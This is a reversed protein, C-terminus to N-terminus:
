PVFPRLCRCGTNAGQLTPAFDYREAARLGQAPGNYSGGRFVRNLGSCNDTWASGDEPRTGDDVYGNHWCDEVWEWLNGSMDLAGTWSAGAPKSGVAATGGADCGDGGDGHIGAEDFVATGNDCTPEPGDGWPYKRHVPGKAAYEWEAESPLRMERWTCYDIAQQWQLGNQPHNSRGNGVTYLGNQGGYDAVSPDGCPRGRCAEYQAVTVEHKGIWFGVAFTVAHVPGEDADRPDEADPSGMPMVGPPVWVEAALPDEAPTYECHGRANCGAPWGEPHAPCDVGGCGSTCGEDVEGDCDDDRGNCAEPVDPLPGDVCDVDRVAGISWSTRPLHLLEAPELARNMIRVEDILGTFGMAGDNARGIRLPRDPYVIAPPGDQRDLSVWDVFLETHGADGDFTAALHEWQGSPRHATDHRYASDNVALRLGDAGFSLWLGQDAPWDCRDALVEEHVSDADLSRAVLELTLAQPDDALGEAIEVVATGGDFRLATGSGPGAVVDADEVRGHRRHAGADVAVASRVEDFRWWGAYRNRPSLLGDPLVLDSVLADPNGWRLEYARYPYRGDVPEDVTNVFFRVRPLPHARKHLYDAPRAVDHLVVEDVLGPFPNPQPHDAVNGIVLDVGNALLGPVGVGEGSQRVGDVFLWMSAPGWTVAVHHWGGPGVVADSTLTEGGQFSVSVAGQADVSLSLDGPPDADNANNDVISGDEQGATLWLWAELTGAPLEPVRDASVRVEHDDGQFALAGDTDGFRGRTAVAGAPVGDLGQESADAGDGDLPWYAVVHDDLDDPRDALPIAGVVEFEVEVGDEAVRLDDFDPQAAPPLRTGFGGRSEYYAEVELPSLARGLLVVEDLAGSWATNACPDAPGSCRGLQLYEGNDVMGPAFDVSGALAGDVYLSLRAGDHTGCLHHWTGVVVAGDEASVSTLPDEGAGNSVELRVGGGQLVSLRYADNGLVGDGALTKDVVVMERDEGPRVWACLSFRDLGDLGPGDDIRVLGDGSLEYAGDPRGGRDAVPQPGIVQGDHENGGADRGDGDLPWYGAVSRDLWGGAVLPVEVPESRRAWQSTGPQEPDDSLTLTRGLPFGALLLCDAGDCDHDVEDGCVDEAFPHFAGAADDCDGPQCGVFGEALVAGEACWGDGDEDCGEDEEGNCDNDLGDCIEDDAPSASGGLLTSCRTVRADEGLACEVVGMGCEGVEQANCLAGLRQVAGEADYPFLPTGDEDLEDRDAVGDCDGDEGLYTGTDPDFTGDCVEDAAARTATGGPDVSCVAGHGDAACEVVGRDQACAGFSGDCAATLGFDEDIGDACDNDRDDCLTEGDPEYIPLGM